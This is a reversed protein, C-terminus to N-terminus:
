MRPTNSDIAESYASSLDELGEPSAAAEAPVLVVVPQEASGLTEEARAAARM